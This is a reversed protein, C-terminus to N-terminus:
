APLADTGVSVPVETLPGAAGGSGVAGRPLLEGAGVRRDLPASGPLVASASLYRDAEAQDSFRVQRRVLDAPGVPQGARLAGRAAWVGVTDDARALYRAGLLTTLAILALGAALRPDRWRPRGARQAVPSEPRPGGVPPGTAAAAGAM